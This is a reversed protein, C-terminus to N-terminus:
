EKGIIGYLLLRHTHEIKISIDDDFSLKSGVINIAEIFDLFIETPITNDIIKEQKGLEIYERFIVNKRENINQSLLAMLAPDKLAAESFHKSVALNIGQACLLLASNTKEIFSIDKALIDRVQEITDSIIYNACQAVLAAKSGFYNYISVQSVRALAAIEKISVDTFGKEEFLTLASNIIAKKKKQTTIEYKNM